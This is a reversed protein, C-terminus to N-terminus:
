RSGATSRACRWRALNVEICRPQCDRQESAQAALRFPHNWYGHLFRPYYELPTLAAEECVAKRLTLRGHSCVQRVTPWSFHTLMYQLGPIRIAIALPTNTRGKQGIEEEPV